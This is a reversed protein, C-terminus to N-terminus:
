RRTKELSSGLKGDKKTNRKKLVFGSSPWLNNGLTEDNMEYTEIHLM